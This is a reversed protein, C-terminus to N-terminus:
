ILFIQFIMILKKKLLEDYFEKYLSIKDPFSKKEDEPIKNSKGGNAEDIKYDTILPIYKDLVEKYEKTLVNVGGKIKYNNKHKNYNM